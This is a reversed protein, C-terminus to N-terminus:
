ANQRPKLWHYVLRTRLSLMRHLAVALRGRWGLGYAHHRATALAASLQEGTHRSGKAEAHVRFESLEVHSVAPEAVAAFRLWLDYDMDLHKQVDLEGVQTWLSRTWFVAMQPIFNESLLRWRSFSRGRWNKYRVVWASIPAGDADIMGACGYMWAPSRIEGLTQVVLDLAGPRLRDDSNLWGLIEGRARALGRNVADSQGADPEFCLVLADGYLGKLEGLLDRSGDTSGPDCVILEVDARGAGLVSDVADRLFAVQEFCPM